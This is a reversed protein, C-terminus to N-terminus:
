INNKIYENIKKRADESEAGPEYTFGHAVAKYDLLEVEVGADKLKKAYLKGEDHLSDMEALIVLAPPMERLREKEAYVPSVYPDKADLPDIYSSNFINAIRPPIAGKPFPKAFPDTALDLPPYDLMQFRFGFEKKENAMMCMVTALNAGASHGGVAMRGPDIRYEDAHKWFHRIVAYTENVAKPYPNEPAKPYDISVIKIGAVEATAANMPEDADAHMLIFGGGHMDFYVPLVEDKEFGYMLIRTKGQETEIFVEKGIVAKKIGKLRNFFETMNRTFRAKKIIQDHTYVRAQKM